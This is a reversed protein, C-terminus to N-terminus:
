PTRSASTPCAGEPFCGDAVWAKFAAYNRIEAAGLIEDAHPRLGPTLVLATKERVVVEAPGSLSTRAAIGPALERYADAFGAADEGDRGPRVPHGRDLVQVAGGVVDGEVLNLADLIDQAHISGAINHPLSM